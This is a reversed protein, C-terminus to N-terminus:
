QFHPKFSWINQTWGRDYILWSCHMLYFKNQKGVKGFDRVDFLDFAEFLDSKKM